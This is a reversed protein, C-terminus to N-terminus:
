RSDVISSDAVDGAMVLSRGCHASILAAWHLGSAFGLRVRHGYSGQRYILVLCDDCPVGLAVVAVEDRPFVVGPAADARSVEWRQARAVFERHQRERQAIRRLLDEPSPLTAVRTAM